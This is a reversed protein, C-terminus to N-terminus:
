IVVMRSVTGSDIFEACIESIYQIDSTINTSPYREGMFDMLECNAGDNDISRVIVGDPVITELYPMYLCNSIQIKLESIKIDEESHILGIVGCDRIYKIAAVVSSLHPNERLPLQIRSGDQAYFGGFRIM